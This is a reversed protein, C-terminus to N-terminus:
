YTLRGISVLPFIFPFFFFFAFVTPFREKEFLQSIASALHHLRGRFIAMPPHRPTGTARGLLLRLLVARLLGGWGPGVDEHTGSM